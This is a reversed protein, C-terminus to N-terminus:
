RSHHRHVALNCTSFTCKGIWMLQCPLEDTAAFTNFSFKLVPLALVVDM